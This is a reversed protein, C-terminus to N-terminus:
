LKKYLKSQTSLRQAVKETAGIVPFSRYVKAFIWNDAYYTM